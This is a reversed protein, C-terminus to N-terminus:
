KFVTEEFVTQRIATLFQKGGLAQKMALIPRGQDLSALSASDLAAIRARFQHARRVDNPRARSIAPALEALSTQTEDLTTRVVPGMLTAGIRGIRDRITSGVRTSAAADGVVKTPAAAGRKEAGFSLLALGIIGVLLLKAFSM